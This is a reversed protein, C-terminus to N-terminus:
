AKSDVHEVHEIGGAKEEKQELTPEEFKYHAIKYWPLDFLQEVAELSHGAPEPLMFITFLLGIFTICAFFALAGYDGMSVNMPPLARSNAYQNAFHFAMIIATAVSRVTLPFIESNILYQCANFGLAWGFGNLYLMAVAGDAAAHSGGKAVFVTVYILSFLQVCIGSFLSRKRGILDILLVAVIISSILKVTGLVATLKMQDMTDSVGVLEFFDPAYITVANAGTWQGILQILLCITMRYRYKTFLQKICGWVSSRESEIEVQGLIQNSEWTIYPDTTPLNRIKSLNNMAEEDRGVKFLWRPSELTFFSGIFFLGAYAIQVSTPVVWQKRSSDSMHLTTGYNAFQGIMVGLYVSGSYLCVSFGRCGAPSIESLYTPASVATMGIGIGAIFRGAYLQGVGTYTTIQIIVGVIWIVCLTRFTKLRGIRDNLIFGLICGGICGIQVMSSINSKLNALQSESKGSDENMGVM